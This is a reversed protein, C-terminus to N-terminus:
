AKKAEGTDWQFIATFQTLEVNEVIQRSTTLSLKTEPMLEKLQHLYLEISEISSKEKTALCLGQIVLDRKQAQHKLSVGTLWGSEPLNGSLWELVQTLPRQTTVFRELFDKETKLVNEVENKLNNLVQAQPQVEKWEADLKKLRANSGLYDFYFFVTLLALCAGAAIGIKVLPLQTTQAKEKVRFEEPLLNIELM